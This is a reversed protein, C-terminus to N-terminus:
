WWPRAGRYRAGPAGKCTEPGGRSRLPSPRDRRAPAARPPCRRVAPTPRPRAPRGPAASRGAPRGPTRRRSRRTCASRARDGDRHGARIRPVQVPLQGFEPVHDGVATGAEREGVGLVTRQGRDCRYPVADRVAQAAPLRRAPGVEGPQQGVPGLRGLRRRGGGPEGARRAPEAGVVDDVELVRGPRRRRGPTDDHPVAVQVVVQFQDGAVGPDVAPRHQDAPHRQEVVHAQGAPDEVGHVGPGAADGEGRHGEQGGRAQPQLRDATVAAGVDGPGVEAVFVQQAPQAVVVREVQRRQAGGQLATFRHQRGRHVPDLGPEAPHAEVRRREDVDVAHGLRHQEDAAPGAAPGRQQAPVPGHEVPVAHDHRRRRARGRHRQDAATHGVRIEADRHDRDVRDGPQGPRRVHHALEPHGARAHRAAVPSPRVLLVRGDEGRRRGGRVVAPVQAGAVEPHDAAVALHEDAAPELVEDDDAATVDVRGVQLRRHHRGVRDEPRAARDGEPHAGVAGFPDHHRGLQALLDQGAPIRDREVAGRGRDPGGHGRVAPHLAM